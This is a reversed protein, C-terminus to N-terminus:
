FNVLTSNSIADAMVFISYLGGTVEVSSRVEYMLMAYAYVDSAYTKVGNDALLEPALYQATGYGDRADITTLVRRSASLKMLGFDAVRANEM